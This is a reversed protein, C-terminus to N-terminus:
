TYQYHLTTVFDYNGATISDTLNILRPFFALYEGYMNPEINHILDFYGYYLDDGKLVQEYSPPYVMSKENIFGGTYFDTNSTKFTAVDVVYHEGDLLLNNTTSHTDDDWATLKCNYAEGFTVDFVISSEKNLRSEISYSAEYEQYYLNNGGITGSASPVALSGSIVADGVVSDFRVYVTGKEIGSLTTTDEYTAYSDQGIIGYNDRDFYVISPETPTSLKFGSGGFAGVGYDHWVALENDSAFDFTGSLLTLKPFFGDFETGAEQDNVIRYMYDTTEYWTGLYKAGPQAHSRTGAVAPTDINPSTFVVKVLEYYGSSGGPPSVWIKKNITVAM